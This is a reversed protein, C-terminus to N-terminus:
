GSRDGTADQDLWEDYAYATEAFAAGAEVDDSYRRYDVFGQSDEWVVRRGVRAVFVGFDMDGTTEDAAGEHVIGDVVAAMPCSYKFVYSERVESLM